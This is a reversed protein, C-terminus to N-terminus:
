IGLLRLPGFALTGLLFHSMSVGLLTRQRAFMAGFLIGSAMALAGTAFSFHLHVVGFQVATLVIALLTRHRGTLFKEISNQLFGRGLLEQAPAVFFYSIVTAWGGWYGWEILPAGRFHATYRILMAKLGVMAVLTLATIGLSESISRRWNGLTWGYDAPRPRHKM